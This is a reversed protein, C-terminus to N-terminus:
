EGRGKRKSNQGLMRLTIWEARRREREVEREMGEM